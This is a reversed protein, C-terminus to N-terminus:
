FFHLSSTVKDMKVSLKHSDYNHMIVLQHFKLIHGFYHGFISKGVFMHAIFNSRSLTFDLTLLGLTEELGVLGALM